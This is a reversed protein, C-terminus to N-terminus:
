RVQGDLEFSREIMEVRDQVLNMKRLAKHMAWLGVRGLKPTQRVPAVPLKWRRLVGTTYYAGNAFRTHWTEYDISLSVNFVGQNEIRHPAHLPWAVATGPELDFVRADNDWERKFYLDETTQKLVIDELGRQSMHVEDSPYIWIRKRGRLHFLCVGPPDVHFPVKTQPGSMILQGNLQLPEFGPAQLAVGAFVDRIIGALERDHAEVGRLQLWVRGQKVGELLEAGSLKARVGFRAHSQGDEDYDFLNIDMQETPYREILAALREDEFLGTDLLRHQFTMPVRGFESKQQDNWAEVLAEPNTM